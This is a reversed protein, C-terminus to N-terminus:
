PTQEADSLSVLPPAVKPSIMFTLKFDSVAETTSTDAVVSSLDNGVFVPSNELRRMFDALRNNSESVGIIEIRNQKRNLQKFAIGPPVLTALENLVIPSVNRHEQLQQILSIRKEIDEKQKKITAIKGIKVDLIALEKELFQNRQQQNKILTDLFSGIGLVLGVALLACFALTALYLQKQKERQKERWPLLNIYSM